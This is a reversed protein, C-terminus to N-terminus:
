LIYDTQGMLKFTQADRDFDHKDTINSGNFEARLYERIAELKEEDFM